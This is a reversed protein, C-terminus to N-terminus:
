FQSPIYYINVIIQRSPMLINKSVLFANNRQFSIAIKLKTTLINRFYKYKTNRYTSSLIVLFSEYITIHLLLLKKYLTSGNM